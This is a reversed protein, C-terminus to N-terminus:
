SSVTVKLTVTEQQNNKWTAFSNFFNPGIKM